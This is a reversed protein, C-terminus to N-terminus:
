WLRRFPALPNSYDNHNEIFIGRDVLNEISVRFCHPKEFFLLHGAATAKGYFKIGQFVPGQHVAHLDVGQNALEFLKQFGQRDRDSGHLM